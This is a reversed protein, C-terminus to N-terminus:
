CLYGTSPCMAMKEINTDLRPITHRIKVSAPATPTRYSSFVSTKLQNSSPLMRPNLPDLFLCPLFLCGLVVSCCLSLDSAFISYRRLIM